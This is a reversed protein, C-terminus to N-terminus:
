LPTKTVDDLENVCESCDCVHHWVTYRGVGLMCFDRDQLISVNIGRDYGSLERPIIWHKNRLGLRVDLM